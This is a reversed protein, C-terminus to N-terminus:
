DDLLGRERFGNRYRMVKDAYALLQSDGAAEREAVWADWGGAERCYNALKRTGLNYAVLSRRVNGDYTDLLWAFNNAGLRANLEADSLLEEETPQPLGLIDARWNATVPMLQFLGLAGRNSKAGVKGSSEAVMIAALLYADVGSEESALKLVDAHQEVRQIALYDRVAARVGGASETSFASRAALFVVVALAAFLLFRLPSRRLSM